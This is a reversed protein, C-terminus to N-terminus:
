FTKQTIKCNTLFIRAFYGEEVSYEAGFQWFFTVELPIQDDLEEFTIFGSMNGPIYISYSRVFYNKIYSALIIKM